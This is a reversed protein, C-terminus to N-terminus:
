PPAPVLTFTEGSPMEVVVDILASSVYRATLGVPRDAITTPVPGAHFTVDDPTPVDISIETGLYEGLDGGLTTWASKLRYRQAQVRVALLALM